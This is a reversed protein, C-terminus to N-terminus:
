RRVTLSTEREEYMAVKEEFKSLDAVRLAKIEDMAQSRLARWEEAFEAGRAVVDREYARRAVADMDEEKCKALKM